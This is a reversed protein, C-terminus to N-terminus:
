AHYQEAPYTYDADTIVIYQAEPSLNRIGEAIADGKGTGRQIIIEAGLDKAVQVTRDTSKGDVILIPADLYQQIETITRGIGQEENYAAILVQVSGDLASDM